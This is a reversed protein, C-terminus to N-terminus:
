RATETCMASSPERSLIKCVAILTYALVPNEDSGKRSSKGLLRLNNASNMEKHSYSEHFSSEEFGSISVSLSLSVSPSVPTSPIPFFLPLSLHPSLFVSKLLLHQLRIYHHVHFWLYGIVKATSWWKFTPQLNSESVIPPFKLFAHIGPSLLDYHYGTQHRSM